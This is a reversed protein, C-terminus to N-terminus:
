RVNWGKSIQAILERAAKRDFRGCDHMFEYHYQKPDGEEPTYSCVPCEVQTSTWRHGCSDCRKSKAAPSINGMEMCQMINRLDPKYNGPISRIYIEFLRSRQRDTLPALRDAVAKMMGQTPFDGYLNQIDLIFQGTTM